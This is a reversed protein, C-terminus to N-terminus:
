GEMDQARVKELEEIVATLKEKGSINTTYSRLNRLKVLIQLVQYFPEELVEELTKIQMESM